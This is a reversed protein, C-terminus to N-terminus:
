EPRLHARRFENITRVARYAESLSVADLEIRATMEYSVRGFQRSTAIIVFRRM